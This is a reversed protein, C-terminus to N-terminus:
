YLSRVKSDHMKWPPSQENDPDYYSPQLETYVVQRAHLTRSEIEVVAIFYNLALYAYVHVCMYM